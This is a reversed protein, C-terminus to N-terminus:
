LWKLWLKRRWSSILLLFWESKRFVQVQCRGRHHNGPMFCANPINLGALSVLETLNMVHTPSCTKQVRGRKVVEDQTYVLAITTRFMNLCKALHNQILWNCEGKRNLNQKRIHLITDQGDIYLLLQEKIIGFLLDVM